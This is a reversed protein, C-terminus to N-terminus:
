NSEGLLIKAVDPSLLKAQNLSEVVRAAFINDYRAKLERTFLEAKQDIHKSMVSEISITKLKSEIMDDLKQKGSYRTEVEGSLLKDKVMQELEYKIFNESIAAAATTAQKIAEDSIVKKIERVVDRIIADKVYEKFSATPTASEEDVRADIFMDEVISEFSIVINMDKM